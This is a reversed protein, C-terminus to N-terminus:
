LFSSVPRYKPHFLYPHGDKLIFGGQQQYPKLNDQLMNYALREPDCCCGCAAAYWGGVSVTEGWDHGHGSVYNCRYKDAARAAVRVPVVSYNAPHSIRWMGTSAKVNCYYYPYVEFKKEFRYGLLQRILNVRVAVALRKTLRKEHNGLIMVLRKFNELLVDSFEAAAEVEDSVEVEADEAFEYGDRGSLMPKTFKSLSAFHLFDGALIVTEIKWKKALAVLDSCWDADHFPAEVDSLVLVDDSEVVPPDTYRIYQSETFIRPVGAQTKHLGQTRRQHVVMWITIDKGTAESLVGAIDADTEHMWCRRVYERPTTTKGDIKVKVDWWNKKKRKAM